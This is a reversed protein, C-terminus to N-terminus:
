DRYKNKCRSFVNNNLEKCLVCNNVMGSRRRECDVIHEKAVFKLEPEKVKGGAKRTDSKDVLEIKSDKKVSESVTDLQSKKEDGINKISSADVFQLGSKKEKDAKIVDSGDVIEITM